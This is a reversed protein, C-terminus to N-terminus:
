VELRRPLVDAIGEAAEEPTRGLSIVDFKGSGELPGVNYLIFRGQRTRPDYLLEDLAGRLDAFTAGVLEDRQFDQALYPLRGRADRWGLRDVLFMPTSTGGWRGNCETFRVDFEGHPDGLVIFDFSCRGVYGMAQFAASVTYSARALDAHVAVPLTSPRSGLFVKEPGELLQEYIGHLEPDGAGLPPIWMQTSPSIDTVGWQVALVEETGDWETHDLFTAVTTELETASQALLDAARYVINGMASACRTRKIGVFESDGAIARVAAALDGVSTARQTPMIWGPGLTEEAISSLQSKDNAAWLAVPRPALVRVEARTEAALAAGLEWVDEIGMYPHIVVRGSSRAWAVLAGWAEGQRCARAVATPAGVPEAMILRPAGLGLLEHNYAEYGDPMPTVAAFVDGDYARVRARHQYREVGAVNAVFPIGSVDELHLVAVRQALADDHAAPDCAIDSWEAGRGSAQLTTAGVQRARDLEVANM